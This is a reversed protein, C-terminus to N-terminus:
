LWTAGGAVRAVSYRALRQQQRGMTQANRTASAGFSVEQQKLQRVDRRVPLPVAPGPTAMTHVVLLPNSQRMVEDNVIMGDQVQKLVRKLDENEKQLRSREREVILKEAM